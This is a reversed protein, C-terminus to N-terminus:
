IRKKEAVVGGLFNSRAQRYKSIWMRSYHSRLRFTQWDHSRRISFLIFVNSGIAVILYTIYLVMGFGRRQISLDLLRVLDNCSGEFLVKRPKREFNLALNVLGREWFRTKDFGAKIGWGWADTSLLSIKTSDARRRCRALSWKPPMDRRVNWCERDTGFGSAFSGFCVFHPRTDRM